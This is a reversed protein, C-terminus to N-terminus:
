SEADVCVESEISKIFAESIGDIAALDWISKYPRYAIILDAKKDGVGKISMLESKNAKNIDIKMRTSEKAINITNTNSNVNSGKSLTFGLLFAIVLLLLFLAIIINTKKM